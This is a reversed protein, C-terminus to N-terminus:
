VLQVAPNLNIPNVEKPSKTQNIYALLIVQRTVHIHTLPYSGLPLSFHKLFCPLSYFHHFSSLREERHCHPASQTQRLNHTHTHTRKYPILKHAQTLTNRQWICVWVSVGSIWVHLLRGYGFGCTRTMLGRAEGAHRQAADTPYHVLPSAKM